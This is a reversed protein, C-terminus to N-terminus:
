FLRTNADRALLASAADAGLLDVALASLAQAGHREDEERALLRVAHLLRGVREEAERQRRTLRAVAEGAVVSVPVALVITSVLERDIDGRAGIVLAVIAPLALLVSSGTPQTFGAFVFALPLLVLYPTLDGGSAAGAIAVVALAALPWVLRTGSRRSSGM